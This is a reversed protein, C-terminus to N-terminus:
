KKSKPYLKKKADWPKDRDFITGYQQYNNYPVADSIWRDVHYGYRQRMQQLTRQHGSERAINKMEGSDVALDYLEETEKMGKGAFSWYIYKTDRTVVALSHTARPGWVNILAIDEHIASTPDRYLSMLSKGDVNEPSELEALELITPAIDILGSLEGCRLEKGSNENRPDFIILPVRSAEEYPLVKSGYGHSGCLFGNDSTFIIITNDAAGNSELAEVIMGVAVDVAHIQQHYKAMVQDYKDAYNWAFFREYQRGQKSQEAFHAGADRGYNAPKQFTAGKYIKDFGPDPEAPKHPAKFSISLCFPQDQKSSQEIFEKGFAGYSLTSHPFEKAYKQMSENRNTKYSTQGPGGGWLDFDESPLPLNKADEPNAKIEFGFKGAFATRYGAKRLLMPYSQQWTRKLMSGHSFNCGTRYEYLGTMVTARSAMCIATTAYHRDFVIGASALQDLNPTKVDQNGYCGMSYTSQDDTMLFVINPREDALSEFPVAAFVLLVITALTQFQNPMHTM